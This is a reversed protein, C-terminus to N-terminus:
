RTVPIPNKQVFVDTSDELSQEGFASVVDNLRFVLESFVRVIHFEELPTRIFGDDQKRVVGLVEFREVSSVVM